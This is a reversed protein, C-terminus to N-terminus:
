AFTSVPSWFDADGALGTTVGIWFNRFWVAVSFAWSYIGSIRSYGTGSLSLEGCRALRTSIFRANLGFSFAKM